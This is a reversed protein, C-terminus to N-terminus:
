GKQLWISFAEVPSPTTPDVRVFLVGVLALWALGVAVGPLPRELLSLGAAAVLTGILTRTQDVPNEGQVVIANFAVIAGAALIPGTSQSM